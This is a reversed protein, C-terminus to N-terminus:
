QLKALVESHISGTSKVIFWCTIDTEWIDLCPVWESCHEGRGAFCWCQPGFFTWSHNWDMSIISTYIETPSGRKRVGNTSAPLNSSALSAELTSRERQGAGEKVM